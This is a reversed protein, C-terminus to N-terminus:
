GGHSPRTCRWRGARPPSRRRARRPRSPCRRRGSRRGQAAARSRRGFPSRPPTARTTRRRRARATGRARRRRLRTARASRAARPPRATARGRRRRSRPSGARPRCRWSRARPRWGAPACSASVADLLREGVGFRASSWSGDSLAQIGTASRVRPTACASSPAVSRALSSRAAATSVPQGGAGDLVDEDCLCLEREERGLLAGPALGASVRPRCLREDLLRAEAVVRRARDRVHRRGADREVLRSVLIGARRQRAGVAQPRQEVVAKGPQGDLDPELESAGMEREGLDAAARVTRVSVSRTSSSRGSM